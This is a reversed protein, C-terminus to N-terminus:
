HTTTALFLRLKIARRGVYNLGATAVAPRSLAAGCFRINLISDALLEPRSTIGLLEARQAQAARFTWPRYGRARDSSKQFKNYLNQVQEQRVRLLATELAVRAVCRKGDWARAEQFLSNRITQAMQYQQGRMTEAENRTQEVREFRKRHYIQSAAAQEERNREDQAFKSAREGEAADRRSEAEEWRKLRDREDASFIENRRQQGIEFRLEFDASTPLNPHSDEFTTTGLKSDIRPSSQYDGAERMTKSGAVPTPISVQPNKDRSRDRITNPEKSKVSDSGSPLYSIKKHYGTPVVVPSRMDADATERGELTKISLDFEILTLSMISYRIPLLIM